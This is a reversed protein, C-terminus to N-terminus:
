IFINREDLYNHAVYRGVGPESIEFQKNAADVLFDTSYFSTMMNLVQTVLIPEIYTGYPTEKSIEFLVPDKTSFMRNNDRPKQQYKEPSRIIDFYNGEKVKWGSYELKKKLFASDFYINVYVDGTMLRLCNKSSFPYVSYPLINRPFEGDEYIFTDYNSFNFTTGNKEKAWEPKLEQFKDLFEIQNETSTKDSSLINVVYGDELIESVLIKKRSQNIIKEVKKLHNKIPFNLDVIDVGVREKYKDSVSTVDEPISIRNNVIAMQAVLHRRNQKNPVNGSKMENFINNVDRLKTIGTKTNTKAEYIIIKGNKNISTIDGIRLFRTLDNIIRINHFSFLMKRLLFVHDQSDKVLHGPSNNESMLRLLPRNFKFSRVVIGDTITFLIRLTEKNVTLPLDLEKTDEERSIALSKEKSLKSIEAQIYVINDILGNQFLALFLGNQKLFSLRSLRLLKVFRKFNAKHNKTRLTSQIAVFQKKDYIM